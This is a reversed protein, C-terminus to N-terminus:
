ACKNRTANDMGHQKSLQLSHVPVGVAHNAMPPAGPALQDLPFQSASCGSANIAVQIFRLAAHNSRLQCINLISLKGSILM